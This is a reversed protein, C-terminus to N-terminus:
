RCGRGGPLHTWFEMRLLGLMHTLSPDQNTTTSSTDVKTPQPPLEVLVGGGVLTVKVDIATVGEPDVMAKPAVCCNVAVPLYLSPVDFSMLELTAQLEEELPMALMLPVPRAVGTFPPCTVIVAVEVAVEPVILPEVVRVTPTASLEIATLLLAEPILTPCVACNM